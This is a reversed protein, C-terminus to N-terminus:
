PREAESRIENKTLEFVKAELFLDLAAPDLLNAKAEAELIELSRPITVAVKYPRDSAVLADFVDCVAMLKSQPPIDPGRLGRPYGQGGMREHHAWAIAPVQTLGGTWPIKSLFEYTKQVHSNIEKREVESLSGKPIRLAAIDETELVRSAGGEWHQFTLDELEDMAEVVEQTLVRPENCRVVLEAIRRSEARHAAMAIEFYREDYAEGRKWAAQMREAVAELDRQYIRQLIRELREPELKRAKVLVQERVGVKGFDHLLSAYRLEQLQPPDFRIPGYAGNPTANVAEALGVTLTAVRNSHGSTSPDRAEIAFVAAHVFSDFLHEIEANLKRVEQTREVVRKELDAKHAENERLAKYHDLVRELSAELEALKFPKQIYDYAGSQLAQIASETTAYGTMLICFTKPDIRKVGKILDLGSQGGPMNLDTFITAYHKQQAMGLAMEANDAGECLYGREGLAEVLLTRFDTEDDVILINYPSM